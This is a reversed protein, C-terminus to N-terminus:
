RYEFMTWAVMEANPPTAAEFGYLQGYKPRMAETAERAITAFFNALFRTHANASPEVFDTFPHDAM